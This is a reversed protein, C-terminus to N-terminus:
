EREDLVVTAEATVRECRALGDRHPPKGFVFEAENSTSDQDALPDVRAALDDREVGCSRSTEDHEVIV